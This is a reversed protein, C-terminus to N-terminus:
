PLESFFVKKISFNGNHYTVNFILFNNSLKSLSIAAETGNVKDKEYIVRGLFDYVKVKRIDENTTVIVNNNHLKIILGKNDDRIVNNSLVGQIPFKYFSLIDIGETNKIFNGSQNYEPGLFSILINTTVSKSLSLLIQSQNVSINTISVGNDGHIIFDNPSIVGDNTNLNQANTDIIITMMDSSLNASQIMPSNIDSTYTGQYLDRDILKFIRNGFEKYGDEYVFHCPDFPNGGSTSPVAILAGTSIVDIDSYSVALKRQAEKIPGLRNSSCANKTQFIYINTASPFDDYWSTRLAEFRQYYELETTDFDNEGQSWIIAKVSNLLNTKSLRYYLKGYNSDLSTQYDQPRLFYEIARGGRAGNFIAIPINLKNVLEAALKLGWQGVNGNNFYTGDGDGIFWEENNLLLGTDDTGSAYVRIFDNQNEQNSSGIYQRAVANSQGQIVFVDGAVFDNATYIVTPVTNVLGQVNLDYNALKADILYNFSFNAIGSGNFNLSKTETYFLTGDEFVEVKISDYNVGSNNVTGEVIVEAKNTINNRGYLQKDKPVKSFVVQAYLNSILLLLCILLIKKM